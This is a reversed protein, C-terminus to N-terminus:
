AAGEVCGPRGCSATRCAMVVQPHVYVISLRCWCEVALEGTRLRDSMVKSKAYRPAPAEDVKAMALICGSCRCGNNYRLPTGHRGLSVTM